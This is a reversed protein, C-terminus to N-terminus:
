NRDLIGPAAAEILHRIRFIELEHAAGIQRWREEPATGRWAILSLFCIADTEGMLTGPLVRALIIPALADPSRGVAYDIQLRTSDALIRVFTSSGTMLSTGTFLGEPLEQTQWCGFSWEGLQRGDALFDFVRLAPAAIRITATHCLDDTPLM